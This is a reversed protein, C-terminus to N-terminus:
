SWCFRSQAEGQRLPLGLQEPAAPDTIDWLIVTSEHGVTALTHGQPALAMMFSVAFIGGGYSPLPAGLQRPAAPNAINWLIVSDNTGDGGATAMTRADPSFKVASVGGAHGRLPLGLQEPAAPDTI